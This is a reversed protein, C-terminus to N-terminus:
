RGHFPVEIVAEIADSVATAPRSDVVEGAVGWGAGISEQDAIWPLTSDATEALIPILWDSRVAANLVPLLMVARAAAAPTEEVSRVAVM